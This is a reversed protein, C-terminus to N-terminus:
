ILPIVKPLITDFAEPINIKGSPRTICKARRRVHEADTPDYELYCDVGYAYRSIRASVFHDLYFSIAGDAVAKNSCGSLSCVPIGGEGFDVYVHGDPRYIELDERNVRSKLQSFLWDSAAFGGVLLM